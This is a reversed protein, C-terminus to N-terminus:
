TALETGAAALELASRLTGTLGELTKRYRRAFIKAIARYLHLGLMPQLECLELLQLRPVAFVKGESVAEVGTVVVPPDLLTVLPVTEGARALRVPVEDAGNRALLRVEGELIVYLTDGRHGARALREGSNMRRVEGIGAVLRLEHTTLAEFIDADRLKGYLRALEAEGAAAVGEVSLGAFDGVAEAPGAGDAAAATAEQGMKAGPEGGRESRLATFALAASCLAVTTSLGLLLVYGQVFAFLPAFVAVLTLIALLAVGHRLREEGGEPGGMPDHGM